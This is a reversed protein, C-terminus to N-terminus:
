RRRGGAPSPGRPRYRRSRGTRDRAARWVAASSRGVSSGARSRRGDRDRRTPWLGILSARIEDASTMQSLDPLRVDLILLTIAIAFVGDSFAELREPGRGDEVM